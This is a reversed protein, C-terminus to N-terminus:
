ILDMNKAKKREKNIKNLKIFFKQAHSRVQPGTRTKVVKEVVKWDKGHEM